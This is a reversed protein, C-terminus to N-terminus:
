NNLNLIDFYEILEYHEDATKILRKQKKNLKQKKLPRLNDTTMSSSITGSLEYLNLYVYLLGTKKHTKVEVAKKFIHKSNNCIRHLEELTTLGVHGESTMLAIKHSPTGMSKYVLNIGLKNSINGDDASRVSLRICQNYNPIYKELIMRMKRTGECMQKAIVVAILSIYGSASTYGRLESAAKILAEGQLEHEMFKTLGQEEKENFNLPFSLEMHYLQEINNIIGIKLTENFNEEICQALKLQYAEKSQPTSLPIGLYDQVTDSIEELHMEQTFITVVAGPSYVSKIEACLYDLTTLGLYEALDFQSKLVKLRTNSSKAAFGMLIFQLPLGELIFSNVKKIFAEKGLLESQEGFNNFLCLFEVIQEILSSSKCDEIKPLSNKYLEVPDDITKEQYEMCTLYSHGYLIVLGIIM